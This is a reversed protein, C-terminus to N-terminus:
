GVMPASHLKHCDGCVFRRPFPDASNAKNSAIIRTIESALQKVSKGRFKVFSLPIGKLIALEKELCAWESKDISPTVIQIVMDSEGLQRIVEQQPNESQNHLLDIYISCELGIQEELRKLLNSNVSGDRITYSLFVKM